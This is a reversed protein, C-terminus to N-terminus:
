QRRHGADSARRKDPVLQVEADYSTRDLAGTLLRFWCYVLWTTVVDTDCYARGEDARGASWAKWVQGGDMGLKGPFGCLTALDDLPAHARGNYKALLDM